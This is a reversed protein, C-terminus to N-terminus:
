AHEVDYLPTDHVGEEFEAKRRASPILGQPRFLMTVVLIVGFIGSTYAPVDINLGLNTNMWAGINALGAQNLYALFCAGLIVGWVNGMGGLIVMCLIFVSINFFFDQPFTASKFAAYYGGAIGGFIAGAAYAWTKTRMLPVGMAAAAVEDERIAIWARGLRSDRLRVSCFVTFLVLLIAIWYFLRESTFFTGSGTLFNLGGVGPSDIPTIGNPGNTLNFGTGFFNDGNRAIQPLIEGFGLTVIALYDGRLRLTPLGIVIGVIAALIGALVLLLWISIHIGPIQPGIGVAGFHVNQHAFQESAFWAVTYAGIAYFAVYGLDLLGAYGVVMNLGLAMMVYVLMVTATGGTVDPFVGFLPITFLHGVFFPYTFAIVIAVVALGYKTMPRIVYRRTEPSARSGLRDLYPLWTLTFVVALVLPVSRVTKDTAAALAFVLVLGLEVGLRYLPPLRPLWLAIFLVALGVALSHDVLTWILIVALAEVAIVAGYRELEPLGRWYRRASPVVQALQVV